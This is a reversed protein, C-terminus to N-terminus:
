FNLRLALCFSNSDLYLQPYFSVLQFDALKKKSYPKQFFKLVGQTVFLGAGVIFLDRSLAYKKRAKNYNDIPIEPDLADHYISYDSGPTIISAVLCCALGSYFCINAPTNKLKAEYNFIGKNKNFGIAVSYYIGAGLCFIGTGIASPWYLKDYKSYDLSAKTVSAPENNMLASLHNVEANTRLGM